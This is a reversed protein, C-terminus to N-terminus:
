VVLFTPMGDKDSRFIRLRWHCAAHPLGQPVNRRFRYGIHPKLRLLDRKVLLKGKLPLENLTGAIQPNQTIVRIQDEPEGLWFESELCLNKPPQTLLILGKKYEKLTMERQKRRPKQQPEERQLAAGANM